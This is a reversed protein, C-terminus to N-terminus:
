VVMATQGGTFKKMDPGSRRSRRIEIHGGVRILAAPISSRGSTSIWANRKSVPRCRGSSIPLPLKPTGAETSSFFRYIM